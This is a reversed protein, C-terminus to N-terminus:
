LDCQNSFGAPPIGLAQILRAWYNVQAATSALIVIERENFHQKLVEIFSRPFLLPTQSVLKAYQIAMRERESFTDVDEM